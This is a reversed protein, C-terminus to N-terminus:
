QRDYIEVNRFAKGKEDVGKQTLTLTKGDASVVVRSTGVQKGNMTSTTDYTNTDVRKGVVTTGAPPGGETFNETGGATPM